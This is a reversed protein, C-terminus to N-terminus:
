SCFRTLSGLCPLNYCPLILFLLWSTSSLRCPICTNIHFMKGVPNPHNIITRVWSGLTSSSHTNQWGESSGRIVVLFSVHIIVKIKQLLIQAFLIWFSKAFIKLIAKLPIPSNSLLARWGKQSLERVHTTFWVKLHIQFIRFLLRWQNQPMYTVPWKQPTASTNSLACQIIESLFFHFPCWGCCNRFPLKDTQKRPGPLICRDCWVGLFM